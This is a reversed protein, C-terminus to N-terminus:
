KGALAIFVPLAAYAAISSMLPHRRTFEHQWRLVGAVVGVIAAVLMPMGLLVQVASAAVLFVM